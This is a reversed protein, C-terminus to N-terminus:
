LLFMFKHKQVVYCICYSATVQVHVCTRVDIQVNNLSDPFSESQNTLHILYDMYHTELGEAVQM